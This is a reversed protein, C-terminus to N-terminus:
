HRGHFFFLNTLFMETCCTAHREWHKLTKHLFSVVSTREMAKDTAVSVALADKNKRETPFCSLCSHMYLMTRALHYLHHFKIKAHTNGYLELFLKNHKVCLDLLTDHITQSIEGRRLICIIMYLYTFCEINSMLVGRPAIKEQLFAYMITVMGLVDSAFHRVHDTMMLDDKFYLDSPKGGRSQPLHFQQAYQQVVHVKIGIAALAGCVLALHTGAVGNSVLTHMWDRLYNPGPSLINAMLWIDFLMGTPLYNYGTNTKLKAREANGADALRHLIVNIHARTTQKRSAM